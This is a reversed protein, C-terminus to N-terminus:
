AARLEALFGLYSGGAFCACPDGTTYSSRGLEMAAHVASDGSQRQFCRTESVAGSGPIWLALVCVPLRCCCVLVLFILKSRALVFLFYDNGFTEKTFSESSRAAHM